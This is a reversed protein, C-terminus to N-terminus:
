ASTAAAEPQEGREPSALAARGLWVAALAGIVLVAGVANLAPFGWGQLAMGGLTSGLAGMLGALLDALGQASTREAPELADTLLASGGVFGFNWGVGNLFLALSVILGESAPALGAVAVAAILLVGGLLIVALRGIRDSLWGTFPSASYMGALHLSVALGITPALHGHDHLYVPAISTTGIMVLQSTMLTGLAIQVRPLRLIARLPRPPRAAHTGSPAETQHLHRALALPDPRLLLQLLLAALGFSVIGILFPGGVRPLGLAGALDTAAALLNPGLISGATAAGVILGIAQGRRAAPTVDAAAFRSLLNSTKGVGSLAMGLLLLPFSRQVVGAMALGSGAVALLYGLVLGPRRGARGMLAALPVSALAGGLAGLASPLGSWTNTGTLEAAVISGVALSLSQGTSGCVQAALLTSILRPRAATASVPSLRASTM